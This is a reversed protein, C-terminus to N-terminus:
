EKAIIIYLSKQKDKGKLELKMLGQESIFCTGKEVDKNVELIEKVYDANFIIKGSPINSTLLPVNFIIKNSHNTNDGIVFECINGLTPDIKSQITFISTGLAKKAKTFKNILEIDVDFSFDYSPEDVKPMKPILMLDALAYELNYEKDAILLKTSNIDLTIFKDTINILKLLQSTDFIAINGDKLELPSNIIGMMDKNPSIFEVLAENKDLVWKVKEIIGNLHYKEIMNVFIQRDM